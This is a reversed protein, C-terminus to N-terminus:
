RDHRKNKPKKPFQSFVHARIMYSGWIVVVGTITLVVSMAVDYKERVIPFFLAAFILSLLLPLVFWPWRFYKQIM